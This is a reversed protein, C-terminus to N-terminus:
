FENIGRYLDTVNKNKANTDHENIRGELYYGEERFISSSDRIV